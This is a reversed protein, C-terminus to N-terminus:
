KQCSKIREIDETLSQIVLEADINKMCLHHGEPCIRKKCPSCEIERRIIKYDRSLPYTSKHDTPGFVATIPVSFAAAIHMAGSDNTLFLSCRSILAILERISTKACMNFARGTLGACIEEGIKEEAAAGFVMIKLNDFKSALSRVTAAYRDTFWRKAPGFFAGPNIGLIIDRGEIIGRDALQARAKEIESANLYLKYAAELGGSIGGFVENIAPQTDDNIFFRLLNMYYYIEHICLIEKTVPAKSSLIFGRGGRNYGLIERCGAKKLDLASGISNPLCIGLDYKLERWPMFSKIAAAAAKIGNDRSILSIKNVAPNNEFVPAIYPLACIEIFAEPFLSHLLDIFPTSMVADGLWNTSRVLIKKYSAHKIININM